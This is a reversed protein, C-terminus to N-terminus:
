VLRDIRVPPRGVTVTPAKRALRSPVVPVLGRGSPPEVFGQRDNRPMREDLGSVDDPSREYRLSLASQGGSEIAHPEPAERGLTGKAAQEYGDSLSRLCLLVVVYARRDEPRTTGRLEEAIARLKEGLSTGDDKSTM